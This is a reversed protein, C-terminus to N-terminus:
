KKFLLLKKKFTNKDFEKCKNVWKKLDYNNDSYTSFNYNKYFNLARKLKKLVHITKIKKEKLFFKKFFFDGIKNNRYDHLIYFFSLHASIKNKFIVISGIIKKKYIFYKFIFEKNGIYKWPPNEKKKNFFFAKEKFQKLFHALQFESVKKKVKINKLFNKKSNLFM